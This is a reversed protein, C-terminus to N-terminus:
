LNNFDMLLPVSVNPSQNVEESIVAHLFMEANYILLTARLMQRVCNQFNPGM